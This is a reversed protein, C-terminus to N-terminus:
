SKSIFIVGSIILLAGVIRYTNIQEKLFLESLILTLVYGFSVMPYAFSLQYKSIVSLWLISSLGFMVFGTFITPTFAISIFQRFAGIASVQGYSRMGLRFMFQGLAGLTVSILLLAFNAM